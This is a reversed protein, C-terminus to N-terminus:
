QDPRHWERLLKGGKSIVIEVQKQLQEKVEGSAEPLDVVLHSERTFTTSVM